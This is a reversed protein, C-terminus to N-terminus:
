LQGVGAADEGLGTCVRRGRVCEGDSFALVGGRSAFGAVQGEEKEGDWGGDCTAVMDFHRGLREQLGLAEVRLQETLEQDVPPVRPM